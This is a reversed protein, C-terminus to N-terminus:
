VLGVELFRRKDRLVEAFVGPRKVKWGALELAGAGVALPSAKIIIEGEEEYVVEYSRSWGPEGCGNM